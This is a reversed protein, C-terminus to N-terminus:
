QHCLLSQVMGKSGGNLTYVVAATGATALTAGATTVAGGAGFAGLGWYVGLDAAGYLADSFRAYALDYVVGFGSAATGIRGTVTLVSAMESGLFSVAQSNPLSRSAGAAAAGTAVVPQVADAVTGATDVVGAANELTNSSSDTCLFNVIPNEQPLLM